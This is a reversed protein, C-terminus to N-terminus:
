DIALPAVQLHWTHETGLQISVTKATKVFVSNCLIHSSFGLSPVKPSCSIYQSENSKSADLVLQFINRENTADM